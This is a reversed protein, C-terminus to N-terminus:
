PVLRPIGVSTSAGPATRSTTSISAPSTTEPYILGLFPIGANARPTGDSIPKTADIGLGLLTEQAAEKGSVRAVHEVENRDM